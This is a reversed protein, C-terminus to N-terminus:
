SQEKMRHAAGGPLGFLRAANDFLFASRVHDALNLARISALHAAHPCYPYGSGYIVRDRLFTSMALVLDDQGPLGPFYVDPLLWVRPCRYAVALMAQMLPWGAHVIVIDLGPFQHAVREVRIPDCWDLDTGYEGGLMMLVPLGSEDVAEYIPSLAPDDVQLPQDFLYPELVVGRAGQQALAEIGDHGTSQDIAAYWIRSDPAQDVLARVAENSAGGWTPNPRRAPLGIVDVGAAALECELLDTSVARASPALPWGRARTNEALRAPDKWTTTGIFAEAPPLVRSDFVRM